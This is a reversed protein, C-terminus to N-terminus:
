DQEGARLAQDGAPYIVAIISGLHDAVFYYSAGAARFKPTVITM